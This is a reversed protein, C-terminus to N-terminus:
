GFLHILSSFLVRRDKSVFGVDSDNDIKDYQLLHFIHAFVVFNKRIKAFSYADIVRSSRPFVFSGPQFKKSKM